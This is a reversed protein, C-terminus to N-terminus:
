RAACKEQEDRGPTRYTTAKKALWYKAAERARQPFEGNAIENLVREKVGLGVDVYGTDISNSDLRAIAISRGRKKNFTDIPNRTAVAFKVREVKVLHVLKSAVAAVPHGSKDRLYFLKIKDTM